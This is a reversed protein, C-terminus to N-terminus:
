RIKLTFKKKFFMEQTNVIQKLMEGYKNLSQKSM